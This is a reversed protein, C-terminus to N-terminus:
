LMLRNLPSKPEKSGKSSNCSKCAPVINGIETVGGKSVAIIHDQTLLKGKRGCYACRYRYVKKIAEWQSEMLPNGAKARYNNEYIRYRDPNERRYDQLHKAYQEKHAQYYDQNVKKGQKAYNERRRALREDRTKLLREKLEKTHRERWKKNKELIHNRKRTYTLKYRTREQERLREKNAEKWRRLNEKDRSM